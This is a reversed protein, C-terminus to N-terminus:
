RKLPWFAFGEAYAVIVPFTISLMATAIWLDLDYAPPGAQIHSFASISVFRYLEYTLLALAVSGIILACGKVPQAMKEFPTTQFLTLLIFNGFVYSVPVRVLYDVPDMGSLKIGATWIIGATSLVIATSLLGVYPQAALSPKRILIAKIPWFDLLVLSMIVAVTTISYSLMSWAPIAGKPDLQEQYFPAGKMASFDFGTRFVIWACSYSLLLTGIGIVAPHTSIASCPWCGFIAVLWFTAVISMIIYMNLFPTPPTISGGIFILTTPAVVCGAAVLMLLVAMGRAPQNLKALVLPYRNNWVLGAVIQTPVICMALFAIWSGFVLPEFSISIALSLGITLIAAILGTAPQKVANSDDM